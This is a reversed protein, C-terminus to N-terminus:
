RYSIVAKNTPQNVRWEVTQMSQRIANRKERLPLALHSDLLCSLIAWGKM